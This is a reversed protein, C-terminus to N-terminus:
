GGIRTMSRGDTSDKNYEGFEPKMHVSKKIMAVLEEDSKHDRLAAKLDVETETPLCSRIKGDATLRLRNCGECFRKSMPAIFGVEGTGPKGTGPKGRGAVLPLYFAAATHREPGDKPVTSVDVREAVRPAHIIESVPMYHTEWDMEVSKGGIPMFEIVRLTLDREASYDIIDAIEDDNFGRMLVTNVKIPTLGAHVAADIGRLVPEIEGGTFKRFRDPRLTDLSVNIRTLGAEKLVAAYKELLTANTTLTLDKIGEIAALMAVLEVAGKRVLPEGGTIRVKDIGLSVCAKTIRIIEEFSLIQSREGMAENPRCYTCRLNCRDTISLRLYSLARGFRDELPSGNGPAGDRSDKKTDTM